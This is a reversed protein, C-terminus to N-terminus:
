FPALQAETHPDEERPRRAGEELRGGCRLKVM